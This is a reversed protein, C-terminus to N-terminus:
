CQFKYGVGHVTILHNPNGPDIELKSRLLAIHNDVTRTTPFQDCGWVRDLLEARTVVEGPRTALQRLLAFEKRALSVPRGRRLVEYRRFDVTIEGFELRDPAQSPVAVRRLLARVRAMLEMISFPKTVYDDAGLDLGIVRDYEQSRATLLLVPTAVKDTRLRRCLDLGSMGPLMVDLILLDPLERQFALYGAEADREAVVVYSEFRLNDSLGRLIKPDDEIVMVKKM